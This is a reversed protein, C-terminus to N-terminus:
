HMWDCELSSTDLRGSEALDVVMRNFQAETLERAAAETRRSPRPNTVPNWGLMVAVIEKDDM